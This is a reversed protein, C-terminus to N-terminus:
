KYPLLSAGARSRALKSALSTLHGMCLKKDQVWRRPLTWCSEALLRCLETTSSLLVLNPGVQDGTILVGATGHLSPKNQCVSPGGLERWYPLLWEGKANLSVGNCTLRAVGGEYSWPVITQM